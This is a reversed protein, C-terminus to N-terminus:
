QVEKQNDAAVSLAKRLASLGQELVALEKECVRGFAERLHSVHAPFAQDFIKEGQYTLRVITSRGDQPCSERSVLGKAELRDVVGTLTGKTILTREGLERFTMGLTNGLTAVVDFQPPTLKLTQIHMASYREFAQYCQALERLVSLFPAREATKPM